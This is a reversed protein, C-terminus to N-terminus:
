EHTGRMRHTSSTNLPRRFTQAWACYRRATRKIWKARRHELTEESANNTTPISVSPFERAVIQAVINWCPRGTAWQFVQALNIACYEAPLERPRGGKSPKFRKIWARSKIYDDIDRPQNGNADLQDRYVLPYTARADWWLERDEDTAIGHEIIHILRKRKAPSSLLAWPFRQMLHAEIIALDIEAALTPRQLKIRDLIADITDGDTQAEIDEETAGKKAGHEARHAVMEALTASRNPRSGDIKSKVGRKGDTACHTSIYREGGRIISDTMKGRGTSIEPGQEQEDLLKDFLLSRVDEVSKGEAIYSYALEPHKAAICICRIRLATKTREIMRAWAISYEPLAACGCLIRDAGPKGKGAKKVERTQISNQGGQM